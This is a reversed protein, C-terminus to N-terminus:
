DSCFVRLRVGCQQASSWASTLLAHAQLASPSPSQKALEEQLAGKSLCAGLVLWVERIAAHSQIVADIAKWYEPGSPQADGRRLRAAPGFEGTTWENTWYDTKPHDTNGLTLYRLNKNAQSVVDHLAAASVKTAKSEKKSKAHVFIVRRRTFGIFDAIEAGLDTCLVTADDTLEEPLLANDVLGFVSDDKWKGGADLNGKEGAVAALAAIPELISLLGNESASDTRQLAWFNRNAYVLGDTTAVRIAQERNVFQWFTLRSDIMSRYPIEKSPTVVFRLAEENWHISADITEGNIEVQFVGDDVIGGTLDLTLAPLGDDLPEFRSDDIDLLVHAALPRDPSKMPTSYRAIATTPAAGSRLSVALDDYWRRLEAYTGRMKRSDSVRAHRAGAYRVVDEDDNSFSGQATAFGFTSDGVESAISQIDRARLSRSRVSWESLDNNALSIASIRTGAPLLSHLQTASIPSTDSRVTEPLSGTDSVFLLEENQHVVTYGLAMEVFAAERLVPSNWVGLHLLVRTSSDPSGISLIQRNDSIIDRAVRDVFVDLDMQSPTQRIVTNLRFKIQKWSDSSGMDMSERFLRDWYFSEPQASLLAEVGAPDTAISKPTDGEDFRRYRQWAREMEPDHSVVLPAKTEQRAPNRITRGLQQVRARDSGFDEYIALMSVRPDDFGEILKNQHVWYRVDPRHSPSPVSRRLIGSPGGSRFTEHVGLVREGRKHLARAIAEVDASNGCRIIVREHASLTQAQDLVADVFASVSRVTDLVLFVPERLVRDRIADRHSYRYHADPDLIFLRNDNRFPTATLLCIPANTARVAASWGPAPEYHCEDVVIATFGAFLANMQAPDSDVEKFIQLAMAMTTVFTTAAHPERVHKVFSRASPVQVVPALGDPRSVGLHEWVRSDIDERLQKSLGSWPALVLADRGSAGFEVGALLSAIVASKGTGTPMSVLAAGRTETQSLYERLVTLASRQHDWLVDEM